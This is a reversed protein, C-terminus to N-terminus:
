PQRDPSPDPLHIRAPEGRVIAGAPVDGVVIAGAGIVAGAGIRYPQMRRPIVIAGAAITVHDEIYSKHEPTGAITVGHAIRVGEGIEINPHVVTGLGRHWLQLGRGTQVEYPLVARFLLYNSFKLLWAIPRLRRRYAKNSLTWVFEPGM